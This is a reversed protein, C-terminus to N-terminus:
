DGTTSKEVKDWFAVSFNNPPCSGRRAGQKSCGHPNILVRLKQSWYLIAANTSLPWCKTLCKASISACSTQSSYWMTMVHSLVKTNTRWSCVFDALDSHLPREIYLCLQAVAGAHPYCLYQTHSKSILERMHSPMKVCYCVRDIGQLKYTVMAPM